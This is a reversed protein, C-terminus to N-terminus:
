RVAKAPVIEVVSVVPLHDSLGAAESVVGSSKPEVSARSRLNVIYDIRVSEEPGVFTPEDTSCQQWIPVIELINASNLDGGLFVAKGSKSFKEALYTTLEYIATNRNGASKDCFHTSVYVFKPFEAILAGRPEEGPLVVFDSSVLELTPKYMLGIGYSGDEFPITRHYLYQMDSIKALEAIQFEPSRTNCSDLEQLAIVDPNLGKIVAGIQAYNRGGDESECHHLNYTGLVLQVPKPTCAAALIAAAFFLTFRKMDIALYPTKRINPTVFVRKM